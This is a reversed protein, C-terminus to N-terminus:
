TDLEAVNKCNVVRKFSESTLSSGFNILLGLKKGSLRLYTLLQAQHIPLLKDQAKLEIIVKNDVLLDIRYAHEVCLSEYKIPLDVEKEVSLGAKQLEYALVEGYTKELLGLGLTQGIKKYAIYVIKAIENESM